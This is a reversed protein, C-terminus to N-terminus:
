WRAGRIAWAIAVGNGALSVLVPLWLQHGANGIAPWLNLLSWLILPQYDMPQKVPHKNILWPISLATIALAALFWGLFNVWPASYWGRVTAASEWVWYHKVRTAFPEFGLAFIVVLACALGIVWFGYFNTKRWPRMILRAVGRANIILVLWLLPMAWPVVDFAREGAAETYIFPGFPMGTLAGVALIGAALSMIWVGAMLVNQLPLRQALALLTTLAATLPLLAEVWGFGAPLELRLGTLGANAVWVVLFLIFVPKHWRLATGSLSPIPPLAAVPAPAPATPKGPAAVVCAQAPM